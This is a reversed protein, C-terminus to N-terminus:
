LKRIMLATWYATGTFVESANLTFGGPDVDTIYLNVNESASILITPSLGYVKNLTNFESVKNFTVTAKNSSSMTVTGTDVLMAVERGGVGDLDTKNLAIWYVNGTFVDSTHLTVTTTTPASVSMNINDDPIAIVTPAESFTIDFTIAQNNSTAFAQIGFDVELIDSIIFSTAVVKEIVKKELGVKTASNAKLYAYRVRNKDLSFASPV